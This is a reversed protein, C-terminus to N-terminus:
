LRVVKVEIFKPSEFQSTFENKPTQFSHMALNIHNDIFIKSFNSNSNQFIDDFKPFFKNPDINKM